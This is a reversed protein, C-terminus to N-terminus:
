NKTSPGWVRKIIQRKQNKDSEQYARSHKDSILLYDQNEICFTKSIKWDKESFSKGKSNIVLLKFGKKKFYNSMGNKGSEALWADFKKNFIIKSTKIFEIFLRSTIVYGSIVFFFVSIVSIM